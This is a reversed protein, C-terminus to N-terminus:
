SEEDGDADEDWVADEDAGQEDDGSGGSGNGRGVEHEDIDADTYTGRRENISIADRGQGTLVRGVGPIHRRQKGKRVMAMIQEETYPGGTPTNAGLDRLRIMKEKAMHQKIGNKIKPWLDFCIYPRLDLNQMLKGLVGAKNEPEIKHWSPYYRLYERVIEGILKSWQAAHEGLHLM